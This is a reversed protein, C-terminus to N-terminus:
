ELGAAVPENLKVGVGPVFPVARMVTVTLSPCLWFLVAVRLKVTVTLSLGEIEAM